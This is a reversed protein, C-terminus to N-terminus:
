EPLGALVLHDGFLRRKEPDKFAHAEAFRRASFAPHIRLLARATERAEDAKGTVALSAALFRLNATFRPNLAASRRAWQAAEDYDGAAYTALAMIAYSYFVHADYPSLRLGIEARRRAERTEGIYSFTASSRMWATASSPNAALARDFLEIAYDYDRFLFARVHGCLSLALPNFRDLTLALRSLRDAEAYDARMDPSLGQNILVSYWVAALAHSTGYSPDLAMARQFMKLAEAFRDGDFRYMLDLGRLVCEYADLSEPRKRLVRRLESEQVQPTITAVVRASLEDQLAFLDTAEGAFRDSWIRAGSECDTLEASFRVTQGIRRVSGSLMYRVRLDRRVQRPDPTSGRYRLTSSRSIVVLEPLCALSSIIDQVLGDSFYSTASEAAEDVFPLVAISPRRRRFSDIAPTSRPRRGAGIAYAQVPRSINRLKLVGLDKVPADILGSILDMVAASVLVGGTPAQQQLRSVINIGDGLLDTGEVTVEGMHIACRLRLHVGREPGLKTAAEQVALAAQTAAVPSSFEVLLGDGLSKFIRGGGAVILPDIARRLGRWAALVNEEDAEVLASFNVVDFAAVVVLRRSAYDTDAAAAVVHRRAM